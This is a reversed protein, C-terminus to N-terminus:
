QKYYVQVCDWMRQYEEYQKKYDSVEKSDAAPLPDAHVFVRAAQEYTDCIGIGRAAIMAAGLACTDPERMQEIPIDVVAAVIRKWIMSNAAGGMIKLKKATLGNKGFDDLTQKLGFAVGEMIARAFDFKDNELSFGTFTGKAAPNWVPHNAGILYPYFHLASIGGYRKEIERDIADFDEVLFNDKYWQFSVGSCVLSAINGFLGPIPHIGPAIFSDTFLPKETIGMVVWTTGASLLMDGDFIAGSGISACYQDHGGNYVPIGAVLGLKRAASDTLGGVLAGTPCLRPLDAETIGVVRLIESDWNGQRINFLQRMAANSPDIVAQGTLFHNAYELTTLYKVSTSRKKKFYIIKAADSCDGLKWGTTQYFYENGFLERLMKAEEAARGDMWTWANEVPRYNEDVMVTSGGQTSLSIADIQPYKAKELAEKISLTSASIWDDANQEIKRGDCILRYGHYGKSLIEGNADVVLAKTGTTGIDLGIVAM